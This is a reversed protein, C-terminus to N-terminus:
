GVVNPLGLLSVARGEIPEDGPEDRLRITGEHEARVIRRLSVFVIGGDEELGIRV